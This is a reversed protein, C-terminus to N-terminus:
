ESNSGTKALELKDLRSLRKIEWERTSADSRSLCPEQYILEVPRRTRTYRAGGALNGNHQQLRRDPDTTIGTYLSNDACAAIYVFWQPLCQTM